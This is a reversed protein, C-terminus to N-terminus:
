GCSNVMCGVGVRDGVAVMSVGDGVASVIGAIEHGPVLPYPEDRWDGRAHHIDSYCIGTYKIEIYVDRPGLDRCEIRMPALPETASRAGYANVTPM